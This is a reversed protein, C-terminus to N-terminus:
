TRRCALSRSACERPPRPGSGSRLQSTAWGHRTSAPPQHSQPAGPTLSWTGRHAPPPSPSTSRREPAPSPLPPISRAMAICRFGSASRRPAAPTWCAPPVTPIFLGDTSPAAVDGTFHATVDVVLHAEASVLLSLGTPSVVVISSAARVTDITDFNLNSTDGVVGSAPFATVFGRRAADVVTLNVALATADSPVGAPLPVTVVDGAPVRTTAGMERSDYLRLPTIPVMRGATAATASVFGGATDLLVDGGAQAFIRVAGAPSVQVIAGNARAQGQHTNLNSTSPVLALNAPYVTLYGAAVPDVATVVFSAATLSAPLGCRGSVQVEITSPDIVTYGGPERTDALRCPSVAVFTSTAQDAHAPSVFGAALLETAAIGTSSAVLAAAM